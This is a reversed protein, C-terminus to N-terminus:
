DLKQVPIWYNERYNNSLNRSFSLFGHGKVFKRKREEISYCTM